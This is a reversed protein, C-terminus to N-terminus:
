APSLPGGGEGGGEGEDDGAVLAAHQGGFSVGRVPRQGFAKARRVRAPAACDGEDGGKAMQGSVNSGWAYLNGSATVCASVNTGAAVAVAGGPEASLGDASADVERPQPHKASGGAKPDVDARGLMGYTPSGWALVRGGKRTIALAHHEGGAIARVPGAPAGPGFCPVLAPAWVFQAAGQADDDPPPLALQGANNLGWAVVRGAETVAYTAYAGCAVDAVPDGAPLDASRLAAVPAPTLLSALPPAGSQDFPPVRGLQGQGAMGFTLVAGSRTLLAVHRAGCAVKVVPGLSASSSSSSSAKAKAAAAAATKQKKAAPPAAEEEKAGAGEEEEEAAGGGGGVVVGDAASYVLAPRRQVKAAASFGSAGSADDKFCGWGYVDGETTLAFSVGDGAAVAVVRGAAVPPLRVEGPEYPDGLAPAAAAAAASSKAAAAKGGGGKSAGAGEEGEGGDGDGEGEGEGDERELADWASGATPRGLAGEDNVGWTFVLGDAALAVTHMGGCAAQACRRGDPLPVRAPRMRETADEGLGLAGFPNSGFTFCELSPLAPAPAAPAAAAAAAKRKRPAAAPARKRPAAAAAPAAPPAAAAKRKRPAAATPAAAAAAAAPARKRPAAAPARKRPAAAPARKRPAAAATPAAARSAAAKKKPAAVAPKKAAAAAPKKVAPARVRAPAKPTASAAKKAPAAATNKKPAATAAPAKKKPAAPKKTKPEAAAKAPATAAAKKKPAAKPEAAAAKRQTPANTPAM